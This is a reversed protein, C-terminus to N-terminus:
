RKMYTAHKEAIHEPMLMTVNGGQLEDATYGFVETVAGNAQLIDGQSTSLVQDDHCVVVVVAVVALPPNM